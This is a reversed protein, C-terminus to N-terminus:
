MHKNIADLFKVKFNILELSEATFILALAQDVFIYVAGHVEEIREVVAWGYFSHGYQCTEKIGESAIEYERSGLIIGDKNSIIVCGKSGEM